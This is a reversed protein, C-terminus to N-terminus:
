EFHGAGAAAYQNAVHRGGYHFNAEHTARDMLHVRNFMRGHPGLRVVHDHHWVETARPLAIGAASAKANARQFDVTRSHGLKVEFSARSTGGPALGQRRIGGPDHFYIRRAYPHTGAVFRMPRARRRMGGVINRADLGRTMRRRPNAVQQRHLENAAIRNSRKPM